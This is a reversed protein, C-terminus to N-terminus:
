IALILAMTHEAASLINSEPANVVMVGRATAAAIDVNDLGVGARAVVVLEKSASLLQPDVNTASRIILASAGVICNRLDEPSKELQIDVEFGANRLRELGSEAIEEAIVVRPRTM